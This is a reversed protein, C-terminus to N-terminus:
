NEGCFACQEKESHPIRITLGETAHESEQSAWESRWTANASEIQQDSGIQISHGVYLSDTLADIVKEAVFAASKALSVAGYPSFQGGCAPISLLSSDPYDFVQKSHRGKGNFGCLMCRSTTEQSLSVCHTVLACPEMWALVIPMPRGRKLWLENIAVNTVWDGTAMILLDSEFAEALLKHSDRTVTESYGVVNLHPLNQSLSKAVADAKNKNISNSGLFHRSINPWDLVGGDAIGLRGVGSRTLLSSVEAGLSGAGVLFVYQERLVQSKEDQDRGHVWSHDAREVQIKEVKAGEGVARQIAVDRNMKGPRFGNKVPDASRGKPGRQKRYRPPVHQVAAFFYGGAVAGGVLLAYGDTTMGVVEEPTADIAFKKLIGLLERSTKPYESPLWPEDLWCLWTTQVKGSFKRDYKREYWADLEAPNEGFYIRGCDHFVAIKRTSPRPEVLSVAKRNGTCARAWYSLFEQKFDHDLAGKVNNEILMCALSLVHKVVSVPEPWDVTSESPLLCLVGHEELHPWELLSPGGELAVKPQSYPFNSDLLLLLNYCGTELQLPIRWSHAFRSEFPEPLRLLKEAGFLSSAVFDNVDDVITM